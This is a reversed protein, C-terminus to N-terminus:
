TILERKNLKDKIMGARKTRADDLLKEVKKTEGASLANKFKELQKILRDISRVCNTSNATLIDVWINAPGSAVRSTDMFGKGASKLQEPANANLLAAATIHPLHSVNAYIKDHEAPSLMKVRCGMKAWFEKVLKAAQRNTTKTNTVVCDAQEFLDDRSYELGRQESGAIPHSGVYHIKKNLHKAAWRHPLVKTSGVDTVIAGANLTDNIEVLMKEFISIPTALIVMDSGAVSAKLDGTIESAISFECAKQRTSARHAYGVVKVNPLSRSVTLAVSGGLLGLGIVSVQRLEKM